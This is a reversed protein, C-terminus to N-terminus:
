CAPRCIFFEGGDPDIGCETVDDGVCDADSRCTDAETRCAFVTPKGPSPSHSWTTCTREVWSFRGCEESIPCDDNTDCAGSICTGGNDGCACIQGDGCEDDTTCAYTCLCAATTSGMGDDVQSMGCVGNPGGTCEDDSMCIQYMPDWLQTPDCIEINAPECEAQSARNVAGDACQELGDGIEVPSECAPGFPAETDSDGNAGCALLILLLTLVIM